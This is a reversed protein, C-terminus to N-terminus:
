ILMTEQVQGGSTTSKDVPRNYRSLEHTKYVKHECIVLQQTRPCYRAQLRGADSYLNVWHEKDM